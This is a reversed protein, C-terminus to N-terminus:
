KLSLLLWSIKLRLQITYGCAMMVHSEMSQMAFLCIFESSLGPEELQWGNGWHFGGMRLLFLVTCVDHLNYHHLMKAVRGYTCEINNKVSKVDFLQCALLVMYQFLNRRPDSWGIMSAPLSTIGGDCYQLGVFIIQTRPALEIM